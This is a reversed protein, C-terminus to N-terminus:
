DFLTGRLSPLRTEYALALRSQLTNTLEIKGGFGMVAVGGVSRPPTTTTARSLWCTRALAPSPPEHPHSRM